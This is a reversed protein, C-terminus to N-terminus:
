FGYSKLKDDIRKFSAQREARKKELEAMRKDKAAQDIKQQASIEADTRDLKWQQVYIINPRYEPVISSDKVFAALVLGTLVIALMLFWLEYPKRQALFIRLDRIAGVPSFRTLYRM